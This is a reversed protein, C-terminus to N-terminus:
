FILLTNLEPSILTGGGKLIVLVESSTYAAVEPIPMFPSALKSIFFSFLLLRYFPKIFIWNM